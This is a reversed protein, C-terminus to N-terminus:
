RVEREKPQRGRAKEKEQNREQARAENRQKAVTQANRLREAFGTKSLDKDAIFDEAVAQFKATDAKRFYLTYQTPDHVSRVLSYTLGHRKAHKDFGSLEGKSVPIANLTGSDSLKEISITQKQTNHYVKKTGAAVAKGPLAGAKLAGRLAARLSSNTLQEASHFLIGVFKEALEDGVM